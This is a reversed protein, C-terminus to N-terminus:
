GAEERYKELYRELEIISDYMESGLYDKIKDFKRAVLSLKTELLDIIEDKTMPRDRTPITYPIAMGAMVLMDSVDPPNIYETIMYKDKYPPPYISEMHLIGPKM